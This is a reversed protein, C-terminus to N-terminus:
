SLEVGFKGELERIRKKLEVMKLERGVFAKNMQELEHNRRELERTRRQVREELEENLTCLEDEVLKREAIELELQATREKVLEELHGRLHALEVHTSVRAVLEEMQFPKSIYDVAGLRLGALRDSLDAAASQFIVPINMTAEEAKLRRCVEFGDLGPMRIDLLILDPPQAAISALALEGSNAPRVTYGELQLIGALVRLSETEDDVVLITGRDNM